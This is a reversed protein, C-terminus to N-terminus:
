RKGSKLRARIEEKIRVDLGDPYTSYPQYLNDHDRGPVIQCVADARRQQFFVCLPVVAAELHFTDESGVFLNVKGRLKIRLTAWNKELVSRIDYEQWADQVLPDLEGTGRNFLKLPRGDPGRPSWAWEFSAFQGGTGKVEELRVFDEISLIEKGGIRALNRAKGDRSYYANDTSGPTVDIGVFHRFDVPDPATSWTGGFFDPYTIQLWLSSWGGSSHGTLFRAEPRAILRLRQELHPIFEEVLARSWPGNNESDAFLHHGNPFSGDLFIHILEVEKGERDARSLAEGEQWAATHDGSFGHIRYLAPYSRGQTNQYSHPLVVGARMMVPRQWFATLLSSQLEVLKINETDAIKLASETRRNLVLEVPGGEAPILNGIKIVPSCLDGENQGGYAYNGDTDLLAMIQYAGPRAHSFAHPYAKLDPNFELTQGPAFDTVEIAAIWTDAPIFGVSLSQREQRSDSM